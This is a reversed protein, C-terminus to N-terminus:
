ALYVVSGDAQETGIYEAELTVQVLGIKMKEENTIGKSKVSVTYSNLVINELPHGLRFIPIGNTFQEHCKCVFSDLLVTNSFRTKDEIEIETNSGKTHQTEPYYFSTSVDFDGSEPQDVGVAPIICIYSKFLIMDGKKWNTKGYSIPQLLNGSNGKYNLYNYISGIYRQAQSAVSANVLNSSGNEQLKNQIVLTCKAAKKLQEAM